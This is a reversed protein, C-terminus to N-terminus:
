QGGSRIRVNTTVNVVTGNLNLDLVGTLTANPINLVDNASPTWVAKSARAGEGQANVLLALELAANVRSQVTSLADRTATGDDNLALSVGIAANETNLQCVTQALNVVAKYHTYSQLSGESARTLSLTIFAGQPGNAWTRMSTFRAASAATGDVRDDWEFLNGSDDYLDAGSIPGDQKRWTAIHLDHSYERLSAFWAAPRRFYWTSFPSTVRARGASIDIRPAADVVSYALDQAAMWAAKTLVQNVTGLGLGVTENVVGTTFTMVTATLATVVASYNNSGTGAVTVSQGLAFGDAIWSGASRTVTNGASAFTLTPRGTVVAAAATEVSFGAAVTMVTATLATIPGKTGNNLSTGSVYVLDGVAFGETLFSGSARTATTTTFTLSPAGTMIRRQSSNQARPSFDSVSCRGYIFRENATEYANLTTLFNQADTAARCDGVMLISRFAKQQGSLAVRAAERSTHDSLPGSGRWSLVVALPDAVLTGAGMNITVGIYPVAISTNTGVRLKQWSRGGDLSVNLVIQSSGVTGGVVVVIVGQHEGLCGSAGATVSLASTGANGETNQNSIVGATVIPLGVFLVPKRTQALHLASYELGESYGHLAYIDASNGFFRPTIDPSGAVPAFVCIVDLGGAPVGATDQLVTSARPLTAM